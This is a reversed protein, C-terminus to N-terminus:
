GAATKKMIDRIVLSALTCGFVATIHMLAGNIRKKRACWDVLEKGGNECFAKRDAECTCEGSGCMAKIQPVVPLEDSYVCMLSLPLKRKRLEKRVHRALPCNNTNEIKGSKIRSPDTKAGAGMSAFITIGARMCTEILHMKNSLSDIADIVYDYSPLDFSASSDADYAKHIATIDAEPNIALLRAKMEEVKVKGINLSTAEGQRNINTACIIDSDVITVKLFGSRVLSEACWSGVGGVGFVIVRATAFRKMAASGVVMETRHTIDNLLRSM